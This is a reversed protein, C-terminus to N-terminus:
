AALCCCTPPWVLFLWSGCHRRLLLQAWCLPFEDDADSFARPLNLRAWSTWAAESEALALLRLLLHRGCPACTACCSYCSRTLDINFLLRVFLPSPLMICTSRCSNRQLVTKQSAEMTNRAGSASPQPSPARYPAFPQRTMHCEHLNVHVNHSGKVRCWTLIRRLGPPTKPSHTKIPFSDDKVFIHGQVLRETANWSM